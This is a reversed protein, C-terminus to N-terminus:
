TAGKGDREAVRAAIWAAVERRIWRSATGIKVPKPFENDRIKRYITPRSLGTDRTVDKLPALSDNAQAEM